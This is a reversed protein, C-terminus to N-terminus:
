IQKLIGLPQNPLLSSLGLTIGNLSVIDCNPYTCPNNNAENQGNSNIDDIAKQDADAQSIDSSYKKAPVTYTYSNPLAGSPCNKTFVKSKAVNYFCPVTNVVNQGNASIDDLAKQDADAQSIDSSYKKAQVVYTYNAAGWSSM